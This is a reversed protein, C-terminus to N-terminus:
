ARGAAQHGQHLRLHRVLAAIATGFTRFTGLYTRRTRDQRNRFLILRRDLDAVGYPHLSVTHRDGVTDLAAVTGAMTRRIRDLHHCGVRGIRFGQLYRSDIDFSADTAASALVKTRRARQRSDIHFAMFPM